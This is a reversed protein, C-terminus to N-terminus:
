YPPRRYVQRPIGHSHSGGQGVNASRGAADLNQFGHLVLACQFLLQFFQRIRYMMVVFLSFAAAVVVMLFVPFAATVVVMMMIMVMVVVVIMVMAMMVIMVM